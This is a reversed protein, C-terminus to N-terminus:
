RVFWTLSGLAVRATSGQRCCDLSMQVGVAQCLSASFCWCETLWAGLASPLWCLAEM